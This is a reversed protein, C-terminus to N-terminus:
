FNYLDLEKCVDYLENENKCTMIKEKINADVDFSDLLENFTLVGEFYRQLDFEDVYGFWTVLLLALHNNIFDEVMKLCRKDFANPCNDPTMWKQILPKIAGNIGFEYTPANKTAKTEKTGGYFKVRPGHADQVQSFYIFGPIPGTIAKNAYKDDIRAMEFVTNEEIVEIGYNGTLVERIDEGDLIRDVDNMITEEM